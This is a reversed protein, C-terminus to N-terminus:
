SMPAIKKVLRGINSKVGQVTRLRRAAVLAADLQQIIWDIRSPDMVLPPLLQCVSTDNNAYVMLLDRDYATKTLIPGCHEDKLVLGM